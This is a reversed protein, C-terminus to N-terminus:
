GTPKVVQQPPAMDGWRHQLISLAAVPATETRMVRPGLLLCDFGRTQCRAVENDELGGEPGVLLIVRTPTTNEGEGEALAQSTAGPHLVLKVADETSLRDRDLWESLTSPPTIDVLDCRGSQECASIMIQQWHRHKKEERQPPLKVDVRETYLPVLTNVGLETAKQIVWDMRDGKSIGIALTIDLPSPPCTGSQRQAVQCRVHKKDVASLQATYQDGDGNFLILERGVRMRLVQGLYHAAREELLLEDGAALKQSTYIRPVRM